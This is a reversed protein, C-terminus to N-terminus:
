VFETSLFRSRNMTKFAHFGQKIGQRYCNEFTSNHALSMADVEERGKRRTRVHRATCDVSPM